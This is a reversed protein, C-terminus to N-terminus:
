LQKGGFIARAFCEVGGVANTAGTAIKDGPKLRIPSPLVLTHVVSSNPDTQIRFLDWQFISLDDQLVGIRVDGGCGRTSSSQRGDLVLHVYHLLFGDGDIERETLCPRTDTSICSVPLAAFESSDISRDPESIVNVDVPEIIPPIAFANLSSALFVPLILISRLLGACQNINM